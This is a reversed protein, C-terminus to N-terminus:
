LQKRQACPSASLPASATSCFPRRLHGACPCGAIEEVSAGGPRGFLPARYARPWDAAPRLLLVLTVVHQAADGLRQKLASTGCGLESVSALACNRRLARHTHTHRHTQTDTHRHTQTDTHRHTQTRPRARVCASVVAGAATGAGSGLLATRRRARAVPRERELREAPRSLRQVLHANTILAGHEARRSGRPPQRKAHVSPRHRPEAQVAPASAHALVTPLRAAQACAWARQCHTQAHPTFLCPTTQRRVRAVERM